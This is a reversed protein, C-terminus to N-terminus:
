EGRVHVMKINNEYTLKYNMSRGLYWCGIVICISISTTILFGTMYMMTRIM